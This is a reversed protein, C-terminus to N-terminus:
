GPYSPDPAAASASAGAAGLMTLGVVVPHDATVVFAAQEDAIRTVHFVALGGAKITRQAGNTASTRRDVSGARLLGV